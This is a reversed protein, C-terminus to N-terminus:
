NAADIQQLRHVMEESMWNEGNTTKYATELQRNLIYTTPVTYIHLDSLKKESRVFVLNENAYTQALRSLREPTEDSVCVFKWGRPGFYHAVYALAPLERMCPGCWTAMFNVVYVKHADDRLQFKNGNLDTLALPEFTLAPAVRYKNYFFGGVGLLVVLTLAIIVKNRM